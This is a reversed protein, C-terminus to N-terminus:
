EGSVLVVPSGGVAPMVCIDFEGGGAQRTFAIWKGDPSWDPETPSSVGATSITQVSGGGAPVKALVRRGRAKTAFCFWQGDAAGCTSSEDEATKTLQKLNSGDINCVWVDPSGSKSAIFAVKTGDPSVAPSINSGSYHAIDRRQGDSFNHYFIDP